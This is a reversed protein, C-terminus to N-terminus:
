PRQPAADDDPSLHSALQYIAGPSLRPLLEVWPLGGPRRGAAISPQREGGGGPPGAGPCQHGAARRLGGSTPAFLGAVAGAGGAGDACEARGHVSTKARPKSRASNIPLSPILRALT